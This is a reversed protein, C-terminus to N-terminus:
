PITKQSEEILGLNVTLPQVTKPPVMYALNFVACSLVVLLAAATLVSPMVPRPQSEADINAFAAALGYSAIVMWLWVSPYFDAQNKQTNIILLEYVAVGFTGGVVSQFICNLWKRSSLGFAALTGM